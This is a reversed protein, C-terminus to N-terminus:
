GSFSDLYNQLMLTAAYADEMEKRKKRPIGAEAAKELAEQTTLTEDSFDVSVKLVKALVEGFARAKEASEKESIGVVVKEIKEEEAIKKIKEVGESTAVTALPSALGSEALALGIKSEGWDVGLLRM